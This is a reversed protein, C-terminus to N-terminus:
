RKQLKVKLYIRNEYVTARGHQHSIASGYWRHVLVSGQTPPISDLRALPTGISVGTNAPYQQAFGATCWYQGKDVADRNTEQKQADQQYSRVKSWVVGAM